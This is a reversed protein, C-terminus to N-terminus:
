ALLGAHVARRTEHHELRDRLVGPFPQLRTPLQGLRARPVRGVKQFQRPPHRGLVEVTPFLALPKSPDRHLVVIQPGHEGPRAITLVRQEPQRYCRGEPPEPKHMCVKVLPPLPDFAEQLKCPQAPIHGTVIRFALLEQSPGVEPSAVEGALGAVHVAGCRM